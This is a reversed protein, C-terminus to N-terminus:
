QQILFIFTQYEDMNDHTFNKSTFKSMIFFKSMTVHVLRQHRNKSKLTTKLNEIYIHNAGCIKMHVYACPFLVFSRTCTFRFIDRDISNVGGFEFFGFM